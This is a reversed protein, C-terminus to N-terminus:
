PKNPQTSECKQVISAVFERLKDPNSGVYRGVELFGHGDVVAAATTNKDSVSPVSSSLAVFTPLVMIKYAASLEEVNDVDVTVFLLTQSACALTAYLPEIEQCPKCWSATFKCVVIKRTTTADFCQDKASPSAAIASWEAESAITHVVGVVNQQQAIIENADTQKTLKGRRLNGPQAAEISSKNTFTQCSTNKDSCCADVSKAKKPTSSPLFRSLAQCVVPPLLGAAVLKQLIWQIGLIVLPLIASYPICVGGICCLAM